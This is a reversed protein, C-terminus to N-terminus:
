LHLDLYLKTKTVTETSSYEEPNKVVWESDIQALKEDALRARECWADFRNQLDRLLYIGASNRAFWLFDGPKKTSRMWSEFTPREREMLEPDSM